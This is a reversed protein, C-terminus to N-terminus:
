PATVTLADIAVMVTDEGPRLYQAPHKCSHPWTRGMLCSRIAAADRAHLLSAASLNMCVCLYYPPAPSSDESPDPIIREMFQIVSASVLDYPVPFMTAPYAESHCFLKDPSLYPLIMLPATDICLRPDHTSPYINLFM